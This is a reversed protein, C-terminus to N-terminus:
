LPDGPLRKQDLDRAPEWQRSRIDGSAFALVESAGFFDGATGRVARVNLLTRRIDPKHRL